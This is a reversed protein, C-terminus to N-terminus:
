KVKSWGRYDINKANYVAQSLNIAANLDRNIRQGCYPCTYWSKAADNKKGCNSCIRTSAYGEKISVVGINMGKLRQCVKRLIVAGDTVNGQISGVGCNNEVVVCPPRWNNIIKVVMDILRKKGYKKILSESDGLCYGNSFTFLRRYGWDIGLPFPYQQKSLSSIYYKNELDIKVPEEDQIAGLCKVRFGVYSRCMGKLKQNTLIFYKSCEIQFEKAKKQSVAFACGGVGMCGEEAYYFVAILFLQGM